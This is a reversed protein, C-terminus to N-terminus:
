PKFDMLGAEYEKRTRSIACLPCVESCWHKPLSQAQVWGHWASAHVNGKLENEVDACAQEIYFTPLQKLSKRIKGSYLPFQKEELELRHSQAAAWKYYKLALKYDHRYEANVGLDYAAIQAYLPEHKLAYGFLQLSQKTLGAKWCRAGANVVLAPDHADYQFTLKFQDDVKNKLFPIISEATQAYIPLDGLHWAIELNSFADYDNGQMHYAIGAGYFYRPDNPKRESLLEYLKAALEYNGSKLARNAEGYVTDDNAKALRIITKRDREKDARQFKSVSGTLIKHSLNWDKPLNPPQQRPSSATQPNIDLTAQEPCLATGATKASPKDNTSKAESTQDPLATVLWVLGIVTLTRFSMPQIFWGSRSM